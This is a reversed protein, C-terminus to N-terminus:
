KKRLIRSSVATIVASLESCFCRVGMAQAEILVIGFGEYRSPFIMYDSVAYYDRVAVKDGPILEVCDELGLACIEERLQAAEDGFGILFLHLSSLRTRLEAFVRLVYSQNKQYCFRGVHIFNIGEHPRREEMSYQSLDVSNYIVRGEGGGYFSDCALASCGVKHTAYRLIRRRNAAEIWRRLFSRKQPSPTNHSHAIRVPVGALKAARLCIGEYEGNHAHVVDYGNKKCILYVGLFMRLSRTLNEWLNRKGNKRYCPIRHLRGYEEFLGEREGVTNFVVCGFDFDRFLPRVISFIVTSVGGKGLGGYSIHLVKPKKKNSHM